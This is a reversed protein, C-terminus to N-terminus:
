VALCEQRMQTRNQTMPIVPKAPDKISSNEPSRGHVVRKTIL